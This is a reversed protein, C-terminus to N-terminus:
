GLFTMAYFHRGDPLSYEGIGIRNFDDALLNARHTPSQMLTAVAREASESVAFNNLALNEGAWAYGYGFHSLLEVYMLYGAPDTHGFYGQDALQRARIRGIRTLGADLVYPELGAAVREANIAGLLRAELDTAAGDSVVPLYFDGPLGTDAPTPTATPQATAPPPASTATAVAPASTPPAPTNAPTFTAQPRPDSDVPPLDEPLAAIGADPTPSPPPDGGLLPFLPEDGFPADIPAVTPAIGAAIVATAQTGPSTVAQLLTVGVTLGLAFASLTLAGRRVMRVVANDTAVQLRSRRKRGEPM